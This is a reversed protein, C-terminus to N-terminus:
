SFSITYLDRYLQQQDRSLALAKEKILGFSCLSVWGGIYVHLRDQSVARAWFHLPQHRAGDESTFGAITTPWILGQNYINFSRTLGDSRDINLGGTIKPARLLWLLVLAIWLVLVGGLGIITYYIRTSWSWAPTVFFDIVQTRSGGQALAFPLRPTGVLKVLLQYHGPNWCSQPIVGQFLNKKQPNQNLWITQSNAKDPSSILKALILYNPHETFEVEPDTEKGERKVAAGISLQPSRGLTSLPRPTEMELYPAAQVMTKVTHSTHFREGGKVTLIITYEGAELPQVTKHSYYVQGVKGKKPFDLSIEKAGPSILRAMFGLPYDPNEKIEQGNEKKFEAKLYLDQGLPWFTGPQVLTLRFPIPNKLVTVTGQGGVVRYKWIGPGPDEIRVIDYTEGPIKSVGPDTDKLLSGDPRIIALDLRPNYFIHFELYDLYPQVEFPTEQQVQVPQVAPIEFVRRLTDNFRTYLDPMRHITLVNESGVLSQWDQVTQAFNKNGLQPNEFGVIFIEAKPLERRILATIEGFYKQPGLQRADDPQGDTFLVIVQRRPIKDATTQGALRQIEQFAAQFNTYQRMAKSSLASPPTLQQLMAEANGPQVEILPRSWAQAAFHIVALRHPTEPNARKVLLNQILYKGAEYRVGAPDSGHSGLMSGSEDLLLFVDLGPTPTPKELALSVKDALRSSEPPATRSCGGSWLIFASSLFLLAMGFRWKGRQAM